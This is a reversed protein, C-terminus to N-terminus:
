IEEIIKKINLDYKEKLEEVNGENIVVEDLSYHKFQINLNNELIYESIMSGLSGNKIVEEYVILKKNKLSSIISKDIPKIFLANILGIKKNSKKIEYYFEKLDSGYTIVNIDCIPIIIEWNYNVINYDTIIDDNLLVRGKPYRIAFPNNCDIAYELLENAQKISRPMTIIFNPLNSMISIDYIGQHTSGDGSIIGSRDIMFIVHSNTRSIDHNLIDYSRQIFTSYISVIPIINNQSMSSAMLCALEENIGVDIISDSKKTNIIDLGSGHIMAPSLIKIKDNKEVKDLLLKGIEDSWSSYGTIIKQNQIGTEIDFPGVGHWKGICDMESPLYGKGKITKVHLIISKDYKKAFEFYKILSKMDHGDIPGFYKFGLNTFLNDNKYVLMKFTNRIFKPTIKRFLSYSKRIRLKNFFDSLGGVNKSISMENDNLIIIMKEEKKSALYNLASLSLGNQISGDGIIAVVEGIMPDNKKAELFGLGAGISTSSHGTEWVDHCSESMKPFGSLGDLKRLSSFQEKRGTIIKHTYVQHGVDFILKDNPSNFVYHLALTLEVVGLNASLHGGNHSVNEIIYNRILEAQVELEKITLTKLQELSVIKDIDIM